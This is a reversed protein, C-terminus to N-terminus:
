LRHLFPTRTLPRERQRTPKVAVTLMNIVTLVLLCMSEYGSSSSSSRQRDSPLPTKARSLLVPMPGEFDWYSGDSFDNADEEHEIISIAAKSPMREQELLLDPFAFDEAESNTASSGSSSSELDAFRVRRVPPPDSTSTRPFGEPGTADQESNPETLAFHESFFQSEDDVPAVELSFDAWSDVSHGRKAMTAAEHEISQIIRQEEEREIDSDGMDEESESIADVEGYDSDWATPDEQPPGRLGFDPADVSPPPEVKSIKRPRTKIESDVTSVSLERKSGAHVGGINTNSFTVSLGTQHGRKRTIPGSPAHVEPEESNGQDNEDM